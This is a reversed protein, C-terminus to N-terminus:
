MVDWDAQSYLFAGFDPNPTGSGFEKGVAVM